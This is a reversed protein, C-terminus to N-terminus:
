RQWKTLQSGADMKSQDHNRHRHHMYICFLISLILSRWLPDLHKVINVPSYRDHYMRNPYGFRYNHLSISHHRNNSLYIKTETRLAAGNEMEMGVVFIVKKRILFKYFEAVQIAALMTSTNTFRTLTINSPTTFKAIRFQTVSSTIFM